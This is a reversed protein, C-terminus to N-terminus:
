RPGPTAPSEGREARWAKLWERPLIVAGKLHDRVAHALYNARYRPDGTERVILPEWGFQDATLDVMLAGSLDEVWYHGRWFGDRDIMGGETVGDRLEWVGADSAPAGGRVTWRTGTAQSLAKVLFASTLRCMGSSLLGTRGHSRGLAWRTELFSRASDAVTEVVQRDPAAERSRMM